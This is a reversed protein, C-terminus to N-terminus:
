VKYKGRLAGRVRLCQIMWSYVGVDWRWLALALIRCEDHERAVLVDLIGHVGYACHLIPEVPIM